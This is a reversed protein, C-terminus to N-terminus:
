SVRGLLPGLGPASAEPDGATKGSGGRRATVSCGTEEQKGFM